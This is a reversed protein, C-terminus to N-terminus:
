DHLSLGAFVHAFLTFSVGAFICLHGFISQTGTRLSSPRSVVECPRPLHSRGPALLHCPPPLASGRVCQHSLLGPPRQPHCDPQEEFGRVRDGHSGSHRSGPRCGPCMGAFAWKVLPTRSSPMSARAAAHTATPVDCPPISTSPAPAEASLERTPNERFVRPSRPGCPTFAATVACASGCAAPPASPTHAAQVACMFMLVWLPGGCNPPSRGKRLVERVEPVLALRLTEEPCPGVKVRCLAVRVGSGRRDWHKRCPSRRGGPVRLPAVRGGLGPLQVPGWTGM